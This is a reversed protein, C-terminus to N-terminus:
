PFMVPDLLYNLRGSMLDEDKLSNEAKLVVGSGNDPPSSYDDEPVAVFSDLKKIPIQEKKGGKESGQLVISGGVRKTSAQLNDNEFKHDSM